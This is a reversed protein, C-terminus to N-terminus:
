ELSHMVLGSPVGPQFFVSNRPLRAGTEAVEMIEDIGLPNLLFAIDAKERSVMNLAEEASTTYHIRTGADAHSIGLVPQLIGEHLINVSIKRLLPSQMGPLLRDDQNDPAHELLYYRPIGKVFLGMRSQGGKYLATLFSKRNDFPIMNFFDKIRYELDVLGVGMSDTVVRHVAVPTLGEEMNVLYMQLYDFPQEGDTKGTSARMRDRYLRATEYRHQGDAVLVKRSLMLRSFKEIIESDRVIWLRHHERFSDFEISPEGLSPRIKSSVIKKPDSYVGLVSSLNAHVENLLRLRDLKPAKTTHEYCRFQKAESDGLHVSTIFGKRTVTHDGQCFVHEHYYLAPEEDQVLVGEARWQEFLDRARTYRNNERTDRPIQKGSVLRVANYPSLAHLEDSQQPTIADYPPCIVKGLDVKEPNYRIARFPKTRPM